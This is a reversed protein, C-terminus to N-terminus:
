NCHEIAEWKAKDVIDSLDFTTGDVIEFVEDAKVFYVEGNNMRKVEDESLIMDGSSNVTKVCAPLKGTRPNPCPQIFYIQGVKGYVSRLIIVDNM